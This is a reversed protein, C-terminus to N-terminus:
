SVTVRRVHSLTAFTCSFINLAAIDPHSLFMIHSPLKIKIIGFEKTM